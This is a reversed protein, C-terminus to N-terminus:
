RAATQWRRRGRRRGHGAGGASAQTNGEATAKGAIVVSTNAAATDAAAMVEISGRNALRDAGDDGRLGNASASVLTSASMTSAASCSAVGDARARWHM